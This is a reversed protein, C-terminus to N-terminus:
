VRNSDPALADLALNHSPSQTGDRFLLLIFIFVHSLDHHFCYFLACLLFYLVCPNPYNGFVQLTSEKVRGTAMLALLPLLNGPRGHPDKGILGFPHTGAPYLYVKVLM